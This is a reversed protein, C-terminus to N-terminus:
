DTAVVNKLRTLVLELDISEAATATELLVALEHRAAHSLQHELEIAASRHGAVHLLEPYNVATARKEM